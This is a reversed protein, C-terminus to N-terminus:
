LEEMGENKDYAHKWVKNTEERIRKGKGAAERNGERIILKV